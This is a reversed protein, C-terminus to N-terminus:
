GQWADAEKRSQTSVSDQLNWFPGALTSMCAVTEDDVGLRQTAIWVFRSSSCLFNTCQCGRDDKRQEAQRAVVRKVQEHLAEM